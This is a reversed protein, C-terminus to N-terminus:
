RAHDTEKKDLLAVGAGLVCFLVLLAFALQYSVMGNTFSLVIVLLALTIAGSAYQATVMLSSAAGQKDEPIGRIGVVFKATYILGHGLGSIVMGTYFLPQWFASDLTATILAIGLGGIVFGSFLVQSARYRGILRGALINGLIITISLPLFMIGTTFANIGYGDQLLLTVIFFESGVGAMYFASAACGIRLTRIPRVDREILPRAAFREFLLFAVALVAVILSLLPLVRQYQQQETVLTLLLVFSLVAATGIVSAMVPIRTQAKTQDKDQRLNGYGALVCILVLPVNVYFVLRWSIVTFVGGLVVGVVLGSAGVAGWISLAKARESGEAFRSSILSIIAPQMAAASIGQLARAVMLLEGNPALGGLLSAIGFVSSALLFVQGSGYRDCLRGGLLLFGAFFLGYASVVWQAHTNALSLGRTIEPLAVYIISYDLAIVFQAFSLVLLIMVSHHSLSKKIEIQTEM